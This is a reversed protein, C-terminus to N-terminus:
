ETMVDTVAEPGLSFLLSQSDHNLSWASILENVSKGKGKGKGGNNREVSSAFMILKGNVDRGASDRPQFEWLVQRLVEPKLNFLLVQSDDNLSWTEFFELITPGQGDHLSSVWAWDRPGGM